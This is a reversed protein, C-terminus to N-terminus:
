RCTKAKDGSRRQPQPTKMVMERENAGTAETCSLCQGRLQASCFLAAPGHEGDQGAAMCYHSDDTCSACSLWIYVEEGWPGQRPNPVLKYVAFLHSQEHEGVCADRNTECATEALIILQLLLFFKPVIAYLTRLDANSCFGNVKHRSKNKAPLLKM